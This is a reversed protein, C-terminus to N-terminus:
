GMRGTLAPRRSLRRSADPEQFERGGKLTFERLANTKEQSFKGGREKM